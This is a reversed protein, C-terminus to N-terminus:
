ILSPNSIVQRMFDIVASKRIYLNHILTQEHDNPQTQGLLIHQLSSEDLSELVRLAATFRDDKMGQLQEQRIPPSKVFFELIRNDSILQRSSDTPQPYTLGIDSVYIDGTTQQQLYQGNDGGGALCRMLAGMALQFQQNRRTDPNAAMELQAGFGRDTIHDIFNYAVFPVQERHVLQAEPVPAHLYRGLRSALEEGKLKQTIDAVYEEPSTRMSQAYDIANDLSLQATSNSEDDRKFAVTTKLLYKNGLEDFAIRMPGSGVEAQAQRKEAYFEATAALDIKAHEPSPIPEKLM